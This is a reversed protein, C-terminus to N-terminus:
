QVVESVIRKVTKRDIGYMRGVQSTSYGMEVLWRVQHEKRAELKRVVVGRPRRNNNQQSSTAWRCNGPVYGKNNDIRDITLGPPKEGMDALFNDFVAWRACVEIGREGYYKFDKNSPNNCRSRM